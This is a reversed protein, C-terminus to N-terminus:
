KMGEMPPTVVRPGRRRPFRAMAVRIMINRRTATLTMPILSDDVRLSIITTGLRRTWDAMRTRPNAKM